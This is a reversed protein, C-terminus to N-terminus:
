PPAPITSSSFGVKQGYIDVNSEIDTLHDELQSILGEFINQYEQLKKKLNNIEADNKSIEDDKKIIEANKKTIEADIEKIEANKLNLQNELYRLKVELDNNATKIKDKVLLLKDNLLTLKNHLTGNDQKTYYSPDYEDDGGGYQKYTNSSLFINDFLIDRLYNNYKNSKNKILKNLLQCMVNKNNNKIDMISNIINLSQLLQSKYTDLLKYQNIINPNLKKNINFINIGVNDISDVVNYISNITDENNNQRIELNNFFKFLDSM